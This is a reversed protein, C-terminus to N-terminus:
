ASKFFFHKKSSQTVTVYCISANFRLCPLLACLPFASPLPACVYLSLLFLTLSSQGTFCWRYGHYCHNWWRQCTNSRFVLTSITEREAELIRDDFVRSVDDWRCMAVVLIFCCSSAIFRNRAQHISIVIINNRNNNRNFVRLTSFSINICSYSHHHLMSIQDCGVVRKAKFIDNSFDLYIFIYAHMCACESQVLALRWLM